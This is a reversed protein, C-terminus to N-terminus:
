TFLDEKPFQPLGNIQLSKDIAALKLVARVFRTIPPLPHTATHSASQFSHNRPMELQHPM